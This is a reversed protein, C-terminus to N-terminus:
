MLKTLVMVLSFALVGLFTLVTLVRAATKRQNKRTSYEQSYDCGKLLNVQRIYDDIIKQAERAIDRTVTSQSKGSMPDKLIFIAQDIIDSKINNIIVVNRAKKDTM